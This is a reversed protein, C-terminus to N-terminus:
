RLKQKIQEIISETADNEANKNPGYAGAACAHGGGSGKLLPGIEQMLRGLHLGLRKDLPSRIRASISIETDSIVWFVSADAGINIAADAAVNAHASTKGYMFIYKGVLEANSSQIALLTSYRNEVPVMEHFDETISSFNTNAISLLESMQAFTKPTSNQFDASDAFIGNILALAAVKSIKFGLAKLIDYIISATSNYSEDTFLKAALDANAPMIHHDIFIIENSFDSINKSFKGLNEVENVDLIFLADSKEMGTKIETTCGINELMKRANNTLFDPTVVSADDFYESLAVASGVSDRDGISHFTISVKKNKSDKVLDCLETFGIQNM